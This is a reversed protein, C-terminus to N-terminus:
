KSHLIYSMNALAQDVKDRNRLFELRKVEADLYPKLQAELTKVKNRLMENELELTDTYTGLRM